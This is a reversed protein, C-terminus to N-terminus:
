GPLVQGARGGVEAAAAAGGVEAEGGLYNGFAEGAAVASGVEDRGRDRVGVAVGGVEWGVAGRGVGAVVTAGKGVDVGVLGDRALEDRTGM